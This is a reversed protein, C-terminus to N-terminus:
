DVPVTAGADSPALLSGLNNVVADRGGLQGTKQGLWNWEIFKLLSSHEMQVHSVFNSQALPGIALFPLRMGYPQNDVTSTSPPAVHDFYGGGEDYTLVVLTDDRYRSSEISQIVSTAWQVGASLTEDAGPHEERYGIGKVFSVAPLDGTGQLIGLLVSYDQVIGTNVMSAYYEFPVDSPEYACPYTAFPFPCDSPKPPCSGSAVATQMAAYGDYFWTWPVAAATLLDGITPDTYQIPPSELDCTTGVAGKPSYADDVFVFRARALYM